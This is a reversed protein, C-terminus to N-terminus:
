SHTSLSQMRPTEFGGIGPDMSVFIYGHQKRVVSMEAYQKTMQIPM